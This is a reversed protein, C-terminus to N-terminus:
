LSNPYNGFDDIFGTIFIALFAGFLGWYNVPAEGPEAVFPEWGGYNIGLVLVVIAAIIGGFMAVGGLRPIPLMNVRRASPYDIADLKVALKKTLPILAMTVLIAVVFLTGYEIWDM